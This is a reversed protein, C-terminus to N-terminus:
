IYGMACQRFLCGFGASGRMTRYNYSFVLAVTDCLVYAFKADHRQALAIHFIAMIFLHFHLLSSFLLCFINGNM